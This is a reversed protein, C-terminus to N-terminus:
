LAGRRSWANAPQSLGVPDRWVEQHGCAPCAFLDAAGMHVIATTVPMRLGCNRCAAVRLGGPRQDDM